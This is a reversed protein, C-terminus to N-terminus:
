DLLCSGSTIVSVRTQGFGPVDDWTAIFLQTPNFTTNFVSSISAGVLDLLISTNTLRYLVRGSIRIDVDDWFPAILIDNRGTLPFTEPTSDFFFGSFSIVGNASVQLFTLISITGVSARVLSSM